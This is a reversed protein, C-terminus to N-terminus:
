VRILISGVPHASTVGLDTRLGRLDELRTRGPIAALLVCRTLSAAALAIPEADCVFLVPRAAAHGLLERAARGSSLIEPALRVRQELWPVAPLGSLSHMVEEGVKGKGAVIVTDEGLAQALRSACRSEAVTQVEGPNACLVLLLRVSDMRLALRVKEVVRSEESAGGKPARSRRADLIGLVPVDLDRVTDPSLVTRRAFYVIGAAVIGVALGLVAGTGMQSALTPAPPSVREVQIPGPSGSFGRGASLALAKGRETLADLAVQAGKKASEPSPADVSVVLRAEDEAQSLNVIEQTEAPGLDLDAAAAIARYDDDELPTALVKAAWASSYRVERDSGYWGIITDTTARYSVVQAGAMRYGFVMGGILGILLLWWYKRLVL